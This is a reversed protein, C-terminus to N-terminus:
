TTREDYRMLRPTTPKSLDVRWVTDCKGCWVPLAAPDAVDDLWACLWGAGVPNGRWAVWVGHPTRVTVALLHTRPCRVEAARPRTRPTLKPPPRGEEFVQSWLSDPTPRNM